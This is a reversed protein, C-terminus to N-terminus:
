VLNVGLVAKNRQIRYHIKNPDFNVCLRNKPRYNYSILINNLCDKSLIERFADIAGSSIYKIPLNQKKILNAMYKKISAKPYVENIPIKGNKKKILKSKKSNTARKSKLDVKKGKNEKSRANLNSRSNTQEKKKNKPAM